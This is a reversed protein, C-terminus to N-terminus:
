QPNFKVEVTEHTERPGSEYKWEKVAAQAALALVPHGGKIEVVKVTGNPAVLADLRVSGSIHATKALNPYQPPRQLVVKRTGEPIEQSQVVSFSLAAWGALLLVSARWCKLALTM